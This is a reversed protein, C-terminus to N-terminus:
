KAGGRKTRAPTDVTWYNVVINQPQQQQNAQPNAQRQLRARERGDCALKLRWFENNYIDHLSQIPVLVSPDAPPPGVLKFTAPGIPFDPIDPPHFTGGSAAAARTTDINALAAFFHYAHGDSAVFSNFGGILTFDASSWFRILATGHQSRYCVLSRPPSTASRYITASMSIEDPQPHAALYAAATTPDTTPNTAAPSPAPPTPLTVPRIKQVTITQNGQVHVKSDLINNGRPVFRRQSPQWAVSSGDAVDGLIRATSQSPAALTSNGTSAGAYPVAIGSLAPTAASSNATSAGAFPAAFGSLAPAAAASNANSAGAASAQVSLSQADLPSVTWAVTLLIIFANPVTKM